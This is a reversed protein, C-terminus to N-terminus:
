APGRWRDFFAQLSEQEGKECQASREWEEPDIEAEIAEDLTDRLDNPDMADLEWCTEGHNEVFWKYRPDRKKDSAPFSPLGHLDLERLAIRRLLVHDGGYKDLRNPLDHESMYLGSPDYDGCYLAILARGDNDEAVDHVTTAGSFGHM